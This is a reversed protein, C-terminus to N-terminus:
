ELDRADKGVFHPIVRHHLIAIYDEIDKTQVIGEAGDTSRTRLFYVKGSQLLEISAIKVPTDFGKHLNFVPKQYDPAGSDAARLRTLPDALLAAGAASTLFNRRNM